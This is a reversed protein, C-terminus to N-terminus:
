VPPRTPTSVSILAQHTLDATDLFGLLHSNLYDLTNQSFANHSRWILSEIMAERIVQFLACHPALEPLERGIREPIQIALASLLGANDGCSREDAVKRGLPQNPAFSAAPDTANLFRDLYYTAIEHDGFREYTFRVGEATGASTWFRDESLVGESVMHRFLSAEYATSPHLDNVQTRAQDRPLWRQNSEAMSRAVTQVARRVLPDRNDFDLSEPRALKCNVSDLFFEFLGTLNEVGSPVQTWGRNSIAECFLRLFLPNSFETQMLPVGPSAIGYHAFYRTVAVSELGTFGRHYVRVLSHPVLGEPVIVDEYTARVSVAIGIWPYRALQALMGALHKRWLHIGGGENLADILILTRCRRSEGATNLAGLLDETSCSLGLLKIVQSWPENLSFQEGLLLVTCQDASLRSRAIDCLLHTKGVGADGELLLAPVNALACDDGQLLGGLRRLSDVLQYLYHRTGSLRDLRMSTGAGAESREAQEAEHVSSSLRDALRAANRAENECRDLPLQATSTRDLSGLAGVVARVSDRVQATLDPYALEIDRGLAHDCARRIDGRLRDFEDFFEPTRGLGRFCERVPLNVNLAPIYRRGANAVAIDLKRGFWDQSFLEKNFWFYHRGRHQEQSLCGLIESQGWYPFEVTLGKRAAAREWKRVRDNWRDMFSRKKADRPDSRDIPLCVTYRVLREHKELARHVSEDIQRWQPEKPIERFFKAQLAWLDGNGLRWYCEVGADPSGKRVFLAGEPMREAAALQACLEEFAKQQSGDLPRLAGWDIVSGAM